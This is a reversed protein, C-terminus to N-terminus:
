RYYLNCNKVMHDIRDVKGYTALYLKRSENMEMARTRKFIARGREKQQAFLSCSNIANVHSINCPGTSQFSTHIWVSNGWETKRKVAVVPNECRAAKARQDNAATSQKHWCKTPVKGPLRGRNVTSTFGFGKEACCTVSNDGSFFNDWTVHPPESFLPKPKYLGEEYSHADADGHTDNKVFPLLEDVIMKVENNGEYGFHKTHLKHRHVCARVRIRDVDAVVVTQGGKSGGPKELGRKIVGSGKEAWGAFLWTTEDGCLDLCARKTLANTNHVAVDWIYDCKQCPNCNPEGHKAATMNNNLKMARKIELWRTSTMTNWIDKNFASDDPRSRDWRRLMSGRSGGLVGDYVLIGDWHVLEM